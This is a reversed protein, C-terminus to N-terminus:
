RAPEPPEDGGPDDDPHPEQVPLLSLAIAPTILLLAPSPLGEGENAELWHPEASLIGAAIEQQLEGLDRDRVSYMAGDYRINIRKM